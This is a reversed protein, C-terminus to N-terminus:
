NARSDTLAVRLAAILEPDDEAIKASASRTLLISPDSKGSMRLQVREIVVRRKGIMEKLAQRVDKNGRVVLRATVGEDIQLGAVQISDIIARTDRQREFAKAWSLVDVDLRGVAMSFNTVESLRSMFSSSGRPPDHLELYGEAPLVDFETLRFDVRQFRSEHGFPDVIKEDYERREVYKAEVRSERVREIVFGDPAGDVYAAKKLQQHLERVSSLSEFALWTIRRM